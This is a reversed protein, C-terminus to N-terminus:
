WCDSHYGHYTESGGRAASNIWSHRGIPPTVQRITGIGVTKDLTISGRPVFDFFRIVILINYSFLSGRSAHILRGMCPDMGGSSATLARDSYMNWSPRTQDMVRDPRATSSLPAPVM